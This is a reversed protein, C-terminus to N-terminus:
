YAVGNITITGKVPLERTGLTVDAAPVTLAVKTPPPTTDMIVQILRSTAVEGGFQWTYTGDSKKALPNLLATLATVVAVANGDTLTMTINIVKQTFNTPTLQHNLVLVGETTSTGNFFNAIESLKSADVAIGGPGVVVLEVTKPGFSEEIALARAVPKSGDAAVFAAAMVETDETSVARKRVRLQAPGAVKLRALDEDTSGERIDYGSAARPNYLDTLFAVGSRNVTITNAGVNGDTDDMTRYNARINNVGAPPIKGNTGDGFTIIAAGDDDFVLTYHRDTPLSNLFNDVRTWVQDVGTENVTVVINTDDIVPFQTFTFTQDATGASSGLPNDVRTHGQTVPFALYQNGKSIDVTDLGPSGPSSVTVVRFRIWYANAALLGTSVTTKSWAQELNQPLTFTLTSAGMTSLGNSGDVIGSLERWQTGVIYDSAAVSPSSQSLFPDTGGTTVVNNGGSYSSTLDQYAGTIASRVRVVTGTRNSTGLISNLNFTLNSGNNTVSTPQGQDFNGDYYEWVGAIGTGGTNLNFDIQDWLVDPHGIYLADGALVTGGWIAVSSGSNQADTTDDTWANTNGSWLYVYGVKDTRKTIGVDALVEYEVAQASKSELTAFLSTAPVLTRATTFLQSLQAVLTTSAPSAQNLQVDILGLLAVHSTRLKATPLFMENAVLDLLTSNLHYSLSFSRLLQMHPETPDEDTLEPCNTRMYQTLDELIESYFHSTYQFDPIIVTTSM